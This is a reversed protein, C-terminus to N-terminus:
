QTGGPLSPVTLTTGPDLFRPNALQNADAIARWQTPDGYQQYAIDSLRQGRVVMVATTRDPSHRPTEQFQLKVTSAMRITVTLKARLPEGTPAFLTFEETMSELVSLSSTAGQGFLSQANGWAITFRPPAHTATDVKLLSYVPATLTRVDVINDVMGYETTDFFLDLTVKENQGRIFQLVPEDLGPIGIEAYQVGKTVSYKEPNYRAPIQIGKETTLILKAPSM